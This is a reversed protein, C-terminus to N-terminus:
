RHIEREVLPLLRSALIRYGEPTLHHGDDQTYDHRLDRMLATRFLVVRISRAKLRAVIEAINENHGPAGADNTGAQLIVIRTGDPVDADLRALMGASSDGNVGADVVRVQLGLANLMSELQAPYTQQVEVGKGATSSAGLAVVLTHAAEAAGTAALYAMAILLLGIRVASQKM